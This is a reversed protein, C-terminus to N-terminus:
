GEDEEPTELPSTDNPNPDDYTSPQAGARTWMRCFGRPYIIAGENGVVACAAEGRFHDCTSCEVTVGEPPVVYGVDAKSSKQRDLPDGYRNTKRQAWGAYM